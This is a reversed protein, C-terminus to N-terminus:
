HSILLIEPTIEPRNGYAFSRSIFFRVYTQIFAVTVNLWKKNVADIFHTAPNANKAFQM